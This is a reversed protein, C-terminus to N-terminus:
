RSRCFKEVGGEILTGDAFTFGGRTRLIGDSCRASLYSRPSGRVAFRRGVQAQIKTLSALGGALPPLELTLRYRFEGRIRNIPALIAYTETAPVTTRAHLVVTPNGNLTPGNFITLPSRIPVPGGGLSVLAEIRGEGVIAGACLKRAQATSAQAIAEPACSPLGGADLKGDADFDIVAKRLPMPAGGDRAAISVKGEFEIPAFARKPLSRPEFAADARLILNKYEVLAGRGTANAAAVLVVATVLLLASRLAASPM